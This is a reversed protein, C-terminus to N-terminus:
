PKDGKLAERLIKYDSQVQSLQAKLKSNEKEAREARGVAGPVEPQWSTPEYASGLAARLESLVWAQIQDKIIPGTCDQQAWSGLRNLHRIRRAEEQQIALMEAEAKELQDLVDRRADNQIARVTPEDVHYCLQCWEQATKM